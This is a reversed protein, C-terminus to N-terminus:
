QTLSGPATFWIMLYLRSVRAPVGSGASPLRKKMLFRYREESFRLAQEMMKRDTIEQRLQRNIDELERARETVSHQLEANREHLSFAGGEIDVSKAIRKILIENVRRQAEVQRELEQIKELATDPLLEFSSSPCADAM